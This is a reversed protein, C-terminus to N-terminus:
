LLGLFTFIRGLIGPTKKQSLTGEGIYSINADAIRSSLVTNFETIDQPRVRGEVQIQQKEGNIELLQIGKILLEGNKAIEQVTVTLQALLKGSRQIKGKGSSDESLKVTASKDFNPLLKIGIGIGGNKATMTDNSATASSNEYILVTISDGVHNARRDGVLSQFTNENYLSEGWVLSPLLLFIFTFLYRNSKM